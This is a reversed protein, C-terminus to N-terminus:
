GYSGHTWHCFTECFIVLGLVLDTLFVRSDSDNVDREDSNLATHVLTLATLFSVRFQRHHSDGFLIANTIIKGM